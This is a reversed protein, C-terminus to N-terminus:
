LEGIHWHHCHICRYASVRCNRDRRTRKALREAVEKTEYVRKGSCGAVIRRPASIIPEREGRYAARRM